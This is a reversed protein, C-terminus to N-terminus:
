RFHKCLDAYDSDSMEVYGSEEIKKNYKQALQRAESSTDWKRLSFRSM